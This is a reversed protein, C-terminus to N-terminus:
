NQNEFTNSSNNLYEEKAHPCTNTLVHIVDVGTDNLIGILSEFSYDNM